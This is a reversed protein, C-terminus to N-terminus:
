TLRSLPQNMVGSCAISSRTAQRAARRLPARKHLGQEAVPGPAASSLRALIKGM